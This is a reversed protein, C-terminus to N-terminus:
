IQIFISQVDKALRTNINGSLHNKVGIGGVYPIKWIVWRGEPIELIPGCSTGEEGRCIGFKEWM